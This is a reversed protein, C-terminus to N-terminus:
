FLKRKSRIVMGVVELSNDVQQVMGIVQDIKFDAM